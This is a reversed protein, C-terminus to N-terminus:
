VKTRKELAECYLEELARVNRRIHYKEDFIRYGEEGMTTVLDPGALFRSIADALALSDRPEVLIGTKENEICEVSGDVKTAVSAKGASLAELLSLPMGEWLSPLVLFDCAWLLKRVDDRYGLFIVQGSIGLEESERELEKRLPGDGALVFKVNPVGERTRLQAISQLLYTHGKQETMRAINLVMQEEPEVCIGKRYEGVDFADPAKGFPEVGNQVVLLKEEPYGHELLHKKIAESVTIVQGGCAKLSLRNLFRQYPRLDPIRVHYTWFVAELHALAAGFSVYRQELHSHMIDFQEEKLWGAFAPVKRAQSLTSMAITERPVNLADIKELWPALAESPEHLLTPAFRERDIYKVLLRIYEEVGGVAKGASHFLLKYPKM